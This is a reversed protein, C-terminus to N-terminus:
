GFLHIGSYHLAMYMGFATWFVKKLAKGALFAILLGFMLPMYKELKSITDTVRSDNMRDNNFVNM